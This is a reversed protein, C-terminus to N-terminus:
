KYVDRRHGLDVIVVVLVKDRIQYIVRYDGVRVRYLDDEARLKKAGVPRPAKALSDIVAGIRRATDEDLKKLARRAASTVEIKYAM